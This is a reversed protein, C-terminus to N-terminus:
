NLIPIRGAHEDKSRGGKKEGVMYFGLWPSKLAHSRQRFFTTSASPIAEIKDRRSSNMGRMMAAGDRVVPHRPQWLSRVDETRLNQKQANSKM